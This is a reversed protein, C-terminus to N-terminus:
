ELYDPRSLLSTALRLPQPLQCRRVSDQLSSSLAILCSVVTRNSSLGRCSLRFMRLGFYGSRAWRQGIGNRVEEIGKLGPGRLRRQSPPTKNLRPLKIFYSAKRKPLDQFGNTSNAFFEKDINFQPIDSCQKRPRVDFMGYSSLYAPYWVPCVAVDSNKMFGAYAIKKAVENKGRRMTIVVAFCETTGEGELAMSLPRLASSAINTTVFFASSGSLTRVAPPDVKIFPPLCTRYQRYKPVQRSPHRM